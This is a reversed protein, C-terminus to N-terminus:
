ILSLQICKSGRESPMKAGLYSILPIKPPCVHFRAPAALLNPQECALPKCSGFNEIVKLIFHAVFRSTQNFGVASSTILRVHAASTSRRRSCTFITPIQNQM